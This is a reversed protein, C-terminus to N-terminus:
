VLTEEVLAWVQDISLGKCSYTVLAGDDHLVSFSVRPGDSDGQDALTYAQRKYVDLHTYSVPPLLLLGAFLQGEILQDDVQVGILQQYVALPHIRGGLFQLQQEM